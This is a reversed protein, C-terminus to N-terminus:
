TNQGAIHLFESIKGAADFLRDQLESLNEKRTYLVLTVDEIKQILILKDATSFFVQHANEGLKSLQGTVNLDLIAFVSGLLDPDRESPFTTEMVLGDQDIILIGVVGPLDSLPRIIDSLQATM